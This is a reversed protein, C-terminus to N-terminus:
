ILNEFEQEFIVKFKALSKYKKPKRAMASKTFSSKAPYVDTLQIKRNNMKKIIIILLDTRVIGMM